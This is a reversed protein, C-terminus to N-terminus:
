NTDKSLRHGTHHLFVDGLTPRSVTAQQIANDFSAYLPGILTPADPHPLYLTNDVLVPKVGFRTELAQSLGFTDDTTIHLTAPGLSAKLAEPAGLATVQGEYLIGVQDCADAEDLLHTAVLVTTGEAHRLTTVVKWFDHRALPDLGTTPEDLLLVHPQHLLGRALDVRRKLGGSLTKIRAHERDSLSLADLLYAIRKQLRTSTLGHLAGHFRLNEAVTLHDDLAPQQFVMGLHRRVEGAQTQSDFGHVSATGSTPPLLTSLIRFLTTKGSGNPGLLGFFTGPEISLNVDQLAPQDGYRHTIQSLAIAASEM